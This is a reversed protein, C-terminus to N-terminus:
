GAADVWRESFRPPNTPEYGEPTYRDRWEAEVLDDLECGLAIACNQLLRLPPNVM